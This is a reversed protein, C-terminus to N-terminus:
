SMKAVLKCALAGYSKEKILQGKNPGSKHFPGKCLDKRCRHYKYYQPISSHKGRRITMKLKCVDQCTVTKKVACKGKRCATHKVLICRAVAENWKGQAPKFHDYEASGKKLKGAMFKETIVGWKTCLASVGITTPDARGASEYYRPNDRGPALLNAGLPTCRVKPGSPM